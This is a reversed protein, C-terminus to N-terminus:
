NEKLSKTQAKQDIIREIQQFCNELNDNIVVCDYDSWHNIDTDYSELRKNVVEEKDQSRSILRNKLERKNPPLIFIKILNLEKYKSLQLTGQWDIDFLVNNNSKLINLVSKKSTGYYNDFIKAYEYFEDNKIKKEFEDHDLFFYDVGDIENQRPKRTTHSVSIKLTPYKQQLKKTITTKGAGSPSSLIVMISDGKIKM